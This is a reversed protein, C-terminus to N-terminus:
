VVIRKPLGEDDTEGGLCDVGDPWRLATNLAAFADLVDTLDADSTQWWPALLPRIDGFRRKVFALRVLQGAPSRKPPLAARIARQFCVEPHVEFVKEHLSPDARLASDVEQIKPLLAAAQASIGHVPEGRKQRREVEARIEEYLCDHFQLLFRGPPTFVSSARGKLEGRAKEDCSRSGGKTELGIPM